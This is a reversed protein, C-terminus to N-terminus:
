WGEFGRQQVTTWAEFGDADLRQAPYALSAGAVTDELAKRRDRLLRNRLDRGRLYLCDFAILVPPTALEDGPGDLIM